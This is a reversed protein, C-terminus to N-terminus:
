FDEDSTLYSDSIDSLHLTSDDSSQYSDDVEVSIPLELLEDQAELDKNLDCLLVKQYVIRGMTDFLTQYQIPQTDSNNSFHIPEGDSFIYVVSCNILKGIIQNISNIIRIENSDTIYCNYLVLHTCQDGINVVDSLGVFNCNRLMLIEARIGCLHHNYTVNMDMNEFLLTDYVGDFSWFFIRVTENPPSQPGTVKLHKVTKLM